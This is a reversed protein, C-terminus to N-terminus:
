PLAQPLPPAQTQSHPISPSSATRKLEPLAGRFLCLTSCGGAEGAPRWGAPGWTGSTHAKAQNQTGGEEEWEQERGM